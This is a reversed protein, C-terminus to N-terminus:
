MSKTHKKTRNASSNQSSSGSLSKPESPEANELSETVPKQETSKVASLFLSLFDQDNLLEATGQFIDLLSLEEPDSGNVACLIALIDKKHSRLLVPVKETLDRVASERDSEGDKKEIRFLKLNDQDVAINAIPAILDAIVEIAREGKLEALKM